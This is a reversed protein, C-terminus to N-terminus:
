VHAESFPPSVRLLSDAGPLLGEAPPFGGVLADGGVVAAEGSNPRGCHMRRRSANGGRLEAGACSQGGIFASRTPASGRKIATEKWCKNPRLVM